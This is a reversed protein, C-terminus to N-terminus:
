SHQVHIHTGTYNSVPDTYDSILGPLNTIFNPTTTTFISSLMIFKHHSSRSVEYPLESVQSCIGNIKERENLV